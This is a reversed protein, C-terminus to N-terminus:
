VLNRNNMQEAKTLSDRIIRLNFEIREAFIKREEENIEAFGSLAGLSSIMTTIVAAQLAAIDIAKPGAADYMSRFTDKSIKACNERFKEYEAKETASWTKAEDEYEKKLKDINM